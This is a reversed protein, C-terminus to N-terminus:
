YTVSGRKLTTRVGPVRPGAAPAAAPYKLYYHLKIKLLRICSPSTTEATRLPDSALSETARCLELAHDEAARYSPYTMEATRFMETTNDETARSLSSHM